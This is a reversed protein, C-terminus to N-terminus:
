HCHSVAEYYELLPRVAMAQWQHGQEGDRIDAYVPSQSVHRCYLMDKGLDDAICAAIYQLAREVSHGQVSDGQRIDSLVQLGESSCCYFDLAEMSEAGDACARIRGAHAEGPYCDIEFFPLFAPQQTSFAM